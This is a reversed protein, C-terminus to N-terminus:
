HPAVETIQLVDPCRTLMYQEAIERAGEICPMPPPNVCICVAGLLFILTGLLVTYFQVIAYVIPPSFTRANFYLPDTIINFNFVRTAILHSAVALLACAIRSDTDNAFQIDNKLNYITKKCIEGKGECHQLFNKGDWSVRLDYKNKILMSIVTEKDVENDKLLHQLFSERNWAIRINVGNRLLSTVVNTNGKLFASQLVCKGDSFRTNPDAGKKVLGTIVSDVETPNFNFEIALKFYEKLTEPDDISINKDTAVEKLLSNLVNKGYNRKIAFELLGSTTKAHITDITKGLIIESDKQKFQWPEAVMTKFFLDRYIYASGGIRIAKSEKLKKFFDPKKLDNWIAVALLEPATQKYLIELSRLYSANEPSQLQSYLLRFNPDNYARVFNYLPTPTTNIISLSLLHNVNKAPSLVSRWQRVDASLPLKMSNNHLDPKPGTISLERLNPFLYHLVSIKCETIVEHKVKYINNPLLKNTLLPKSDLFSTILCMTDMACRKERRQEMAVMVEHLHFREYVATIFLHAYYRNEFLISIDGELLGELNHTLMIEFVKKYKPNKTAELMTQKNAIVGIGVLKEILNLYSKIIRPRSNYKDRFEDMVKSVIDQLMLAHFFNENEKQVKLLLAVPWYKLLVYNLNKIKLLNRLPYNTVCVNERRKATTANKIFANVVEVNHNEVAELIFDSLTEELLVGESIERIYAQNLENNKDMFSQRVCAKLAKLIKSDKNAKNAEALSVFIEVANVNENEISGRMYQNLQDIKGNNIATKIYDKVAAEERANARADIHVNSESRVV